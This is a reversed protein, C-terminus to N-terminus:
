ILDDLRLPALEAAKAEEVKQLEAEMHVLVEKARQEVTLNGWGYRSKWVKVPMRRIKDYQSTFEFGAMQLLYGAMVKEAKPIGQATMYYARPASTAAMVMIEQTQYPGNFDLAAKIMPELFDVLPSKYLKEMLSYSVTKNETINCTYTPRGFEDIGMIAGAINDYESASHRKNLIKKLVNKAQTEDFSNVKEILKDVTYISM